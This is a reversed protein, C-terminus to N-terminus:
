STRGEAERKVAPAESNKMKLWDLSPGSELRRIQADMETLQAELAQIQSILAQLQRENAATQATYQNNLIRMQDSLIQVRQGMEALNATGTESTSKERRDIEYLSAALAIFCVVSL